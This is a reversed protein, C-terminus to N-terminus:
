GNKMWNSAINTKATLMDLVHNKWEETERETHENSQGITHKRLSAAFFVTKLPRAM